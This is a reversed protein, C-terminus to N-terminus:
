VDGYLRRRIPLTDLFVKERYLHYLIESRLEDTLADTDAQVHIEGSEGDFTCGIDPYLYGIRALGSDVIGRLAVPVAIAFKNM